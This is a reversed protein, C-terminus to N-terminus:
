NKNQNTIQNASLLVGLGLLGNNAISNESLSLYLGIIMLLFGVVLKSTQFQNSYIIKKM